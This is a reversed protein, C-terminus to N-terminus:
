TNQAADAVAASIGPESPPPRTKWRKHFWFYQEPSERVVDELRALYARTICRVNEQVDDTSHFVIPSFRVMYRAKRGPLRRPDAFMVPVGARLAIVGPGRATSAPVGFFDVFIGKGAYNQDALIGVVRPESLSRIIGLTADSQAIGQIGLGDRVRKVYEDFLPNRQRRALAALPIGRCTMSLAAVEWNGFHGALCIVGRGGEIPERLLDLGEVECRSRIDEASMRSFRLLSVAEHAFHRYAADAVGRRWRDSRQPFARALNEQVVSRRIQLLSGAIWGLATGLGYAITEPLCVVLAALSVLLSYEIRHSLRPRTV